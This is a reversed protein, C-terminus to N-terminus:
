RQKIEDAAHKVIDQKTESNSVYKSQKYQTKHSKPYVTSFNPHSAISVSNQHLETQKNLNVNSNHDVDNVQYLSSLATLIFMKASVFSVILMGALRLIENVGGILGCCDLFTLVSRQYSISKSDKVIDIIFVNRDSNISRFNPM